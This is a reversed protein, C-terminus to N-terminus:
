SQRVTFTTLAETLTDLTEYLRQVSRRNPYDRKLKRDEIHLMEILLRSIIILISVQSVIHQWFKEGLLSSLNWAKSILM